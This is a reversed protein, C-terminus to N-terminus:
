MREVAVAQVNVAIDLVGFALGLGILGIAISVGNWALGAIVVSLSGCLLAGRATTRSTFRRVLIPAIASAMIFGVPAGTLALGLGGAGLHLSAKISPLRTAWGASAMGMCLLFTAVASRTRQVVVIAERSVVAVLREIRESSM